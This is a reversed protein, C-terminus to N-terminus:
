RESLSLAFGAANELEANTVGSGDPTCEPISGMVGLLHEKCEQILRRGHQESM